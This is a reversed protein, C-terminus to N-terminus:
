KEGVKAKPLSAKVKELVAKAAESKKPKAKGSGWSSEVLKGNEDRVMKKIQEGAHRLDSRQTVVTILVIGTKQVIEEDTFKGERLLDRALACGSLKKEKEPKAKAKQVPAPKAKKEMAKSLPTAIKTATPVKPSAKLVKVITSM